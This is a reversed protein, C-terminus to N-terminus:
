NFSYNLSVNYVRGRTDYVGDTVTTLSNGLIPTEDDFLNIVGFTVRSPAATPLHYTYNFDWTNFAFEESRPPAVLPNPDTVEIEGVHRFTLRSSHNGVDYLFAVNARLEPNPTVGNVGFADTGVANVLEGTVPNQGAYTNTYTGQVRIGAEGGFMERSMTAAFDLGDTEVIDANIYGSLFVEVDFGSACDDPLPVGSTPGAWRGTIECVETPAGPFLPWRPDNSIFGDSWDARFLTAIDEPTVLNTFEYDWWTAEVTLWDTVDWTFGLTWSESEEPELDTNGVALGVAQTVEGGITDRGVPGGGNGFLQQESPLRFSSGATARVFISDSPTWLVTLKPEVSQQQLTEEWRAALNVELQEMPYMAVEGFVAYTDRYAHWDDFFQPSFGFGGDKSIPDRLIEVEQSRFQGGLAVGTTGGPLDFLEGTTIFEVAYFKADGVDRGGFLMWDLLDPDNYTPDGPQALFRSAFPNWYKCNGEGAAIAPNGAAGDVFNWKCAQGGFGQIARSYRDYITDVGDSWQHNQSFTASVRWDWVDTFQGDLASAVRYTDQLTGWQIGDDFPSLIRTFITTYDQLPFAGGSRANADIVGPNTAPLRSNFPQLALLPVGTGYSSRSESRAFNMEFEFGRVFDSDFEHNFVAMGRLREAEPVFTRELSLLGRCFDPGATKFGAPDTIENEPTGGILPSNCLPDAFFGPVAGPLNSSYSGPNWLATQLGHELRDNDFIDESELQDHRNYYEVAMVLGSQPGQEGFIGAVRIEPSTTQADIVQVGAEFELGDFNNRTIFNAVGAVADSGYLASAGDLLVEVREIMIGPALQDVDVVSNGNGDVTQRYGNLLVLTSRDGLGRLNITNSADGFFETTNVNTMQPMDRLVEVITNRQEAQIEAREMIAVPRPQDAPRAIRSGTVVIRDEEVDAAFAPAFAGATGITLALAGVGGKLLFKL